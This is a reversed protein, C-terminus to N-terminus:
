RVWGVMLGLLTLWDGLGGRERREKLRAELGGGVVKGGEPQGLREDM